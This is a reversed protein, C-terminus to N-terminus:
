VYQRARVTTITEIYGHWTAYGVLPMLIIMGFFATAFGIAVMLFIVAAWLLMVWKNALVANISTVLATMIDVKREVLIPLSFASLAFVTATFFAGTLTGITLFPAFAQWSDTMDPYIAYIMSAVRLWLVMFLVLMVAMGWQPTPNRWMARLSHMLTPKHNRELQWSIDYLGVALLPGIMVFAVLMPLIYMPNGTSLVLSGILWCPIAFLLGYLLSQGPARIFDLVALQLWRLPASFELQKCPIVRGMTHDAIVNPAIDVRPM